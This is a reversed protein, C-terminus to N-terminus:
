GNSAWGKDLQCGLHVVKSYHEIKAWTMTFVSLPGQTKFTGVHNLITLGADRKRKRVNVVM